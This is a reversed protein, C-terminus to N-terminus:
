RPQATKAARAAAAPTSPANSDANYPAQKELLRLQGLLNLSLEPLVTLLKEAPANALENPELKHLGGGYVRGEGILTEMQIESLAHWVAEIRRPQHDLYLALNPKPYLLLYVNPAAAQSHNLLFRFPRGRGTDQRGMYTCLFLAPARVEQSYWPTRHQCLYHQDIGAAVGSQLYTWLTPYQRKVTNEPLNCNLLHRPRDILPEGQVTAKIEDVALFRPSPLIPIFCEPPLQREAIQDPSLIFFDNAGTAIGRQIKFLDALKLGSPKSRPGISARPYHTWKSSERLVAAPIDKTSAPQALTGGYTFEIVRDTASPPTKKFWVVASSVLADQFQVDTPDFRHIRLLTVQDLLYTKLPQGYHVDMFESPILWGALGGEALWAHSLCLFYGYLGTLGNLKLGTARRVAQLLHAKTAQTLHHHRVYPPNCILLNFKDANSAPAIAHTFDMLRLDLAQDRWLDITAQAYHPDIEYGVAAAIRRGAFCKLLASYFSGTGFAPDLFRIHALSPLLARAYELMEIALLTPTPFQGLKNREALTKASDLRSQLTLRKSELVPSLAM